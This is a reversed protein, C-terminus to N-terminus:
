KVELLVQKIKQYVQDSPSEGNLETLQGLKQYYEVLPLTQQNFVAFRQSIIRPTDDNRTILKSGCNDCLGPTKPPQNKIHFVAGCKPCSLRGGLRELVVPLGVTFYFVAVLSAQHDAMIGALAEAQGITRPYGDLIFGRACDAKALRQSILSSIVEDPILKGSEVTNKIQQGLPTQDAIEERILDGASIHAWGFETILKKAQTGKGCGPAGVLVVGKM